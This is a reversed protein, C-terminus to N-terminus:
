PAITLVTGENSAGFFKTTGYLPGDHLVVISADPNQGSNALDRLITETWTGSGSPPEM